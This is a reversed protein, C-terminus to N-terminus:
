RREVQIGGSNAPAGRPSPRRMATATLRKL